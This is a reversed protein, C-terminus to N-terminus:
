SQEEECCIRAVGSPKFLSLLVVSMLLRIM